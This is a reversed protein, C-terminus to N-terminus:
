GGVLISVVPDDRRVATGGMGPSLTDHGVKYYAVKAGQAPGILLRELRSLRGRLPQRGGFVKRVSLRGDIHGEGESRAPEHQRSPEAVAKVVAQGVDQKQVPRM